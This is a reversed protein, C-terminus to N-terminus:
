TSHIFYNKDISFYVRLGFTRAWELGREAAKVTDICTVSTATCPMAIAPNQCASSIEQTLATFHLVAYKIADIVEDQGILSKPTSLNRIEGVQFLVMGFLYVTAPLPPRGITNQINSQDLTM